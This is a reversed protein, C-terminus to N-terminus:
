HKTAAIKLLSTARTSQARMRMMVFLPRVWAVHAKCRFIGVGLVLSVYTSLAAMGMMVVTLPALNARPKAAHTVVQVRTVTTVSQKWCGTTCVDLRQIVPTKPANSEMM